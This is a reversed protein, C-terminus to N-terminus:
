KDMWKLCVPKGVSITNDTKTLLGTKANRSFVIVEETNQNAVLLFKGSPDISFNRPGKGLTPQFGVTKLTGKKADIKYIVINNFDGRNSAYLFKGDASVHIDASGAEGKANKEVSSLRQLEKLKDGQYEYVVVTGSIEEILYLLNKTPHFAIHRPGSGPRSEAAVAASPTINGNAANFDYLMIKDIGLDAVYLSKNDPSINTSHVHPGEQRSKDAGTGAHKITVMPEGLSGSDSVPYSTFNGTGYNAVFVWKGTKDVEVYCPYDGETSQTNILTLQGLNKNFSYSSVRGGKGDKGNEHVAFVYKQDPSIALFSPNSAEVMSVSDAKGTNSDFSYVYIGKSKGGTYTGTLLYRSQANAASLAMSFALSLAM